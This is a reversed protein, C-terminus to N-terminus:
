LPRGMAWKAALYLLMFCWGVVVLKVTWHWDSGPMDPASAIPDSRPPVDKNGSRFQRPNYTAYKAARHSDKEPRRWSENKKDNNGTSGTHRERWWDRDYIGM